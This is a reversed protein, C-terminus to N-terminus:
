RGVEVLTAESACNLLFVAAGAKVRMGSSLYRGGHHAPINEVQSCSRDEVLAVQPAVRRQQSRAVGHYGHASAACEVPHANTVRTLAVAGSGESM